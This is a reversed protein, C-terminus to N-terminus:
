HRAAALAQRGPLAAPQWAFVWEDHRRRGELTELGAPFNALRIAESQALSHVGAIRGDPGRVIGWESKGTLPDPYLRRLHRRVSPQRRDLLLETLERPADPQGVPTSEAYSKLAQRFEMGIALLEDEASRRTLSSGATLAAAVAAGLIAVMIM